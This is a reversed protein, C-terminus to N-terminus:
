LKLQLKYDVSEKGIWEDLFTTGMRVAQVPSTDAGLPLNYNGVLSGAELKEWTRPDHEVDMGRSRGEWTKTYTSMLDELPLKSRSEAVLTAMTQINESMISLAKDTTLGNKDGGSPGDGGQQPPRQAVISAIRACIIAGLQLRLGELHPFEQCNNKFFRFLPFLTRWSGNFDAPVHLLHAKYDMCYYAAM